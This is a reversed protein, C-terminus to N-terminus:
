SSRKAERSPASSPRPAGDSWWAAADERGARGFRAGGEGRAQAARARKIRRGQSPLDAGRDQRWAALCLPDHFHQGHWMAVIVPLEAAIADLFGPPEVTFRNTARVLRLYGSALLSAFELVPKSRVLANFM